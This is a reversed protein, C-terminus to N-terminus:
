PRTEGALVEAAFSPWYAHGSEGGDEYLDRALLAQVGVGAEQVRRDLSGAQVLRREVMSPGAGEVFYERVYRLADDDAAYADVCWLTPDPAFRSRMRPNLEAREQTRIRVDPRDVFALRLAFYVDFPDNPDLRM